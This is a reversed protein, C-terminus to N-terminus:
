LQHLDELDGRSDTLYEVLDHFFSKVKSNGIPRTPRFVVGTNGIDMDLAKALQVFSLEQDERHHSLFEILRPDKERVARVLSSSFNLMLDIKKTSLTSNFLRFEVTQHSSLSKINLAKYRTDFDIYEDVKSEINQSELVRQVDTKIPSAYNKTRNPTSAFKEIVQNEIVSFLKLLLLLEHTNRQPFGIHIHVGADFPHSSVFGTSKIKKMVKYFTEVDEQNRLIPSIIEFGHRRGKIINSLSINGVGFFEQAISYIYTQGEKEFIVRDGLSRFQIEPYILQLEKKILDALYVNTQIKQGKTKINRPALLEVEIGFTPPRSAFDFPNYKNILEFGWSPEFFRGFAEQCQNALSLQYFSLIFFLVLIFRKM